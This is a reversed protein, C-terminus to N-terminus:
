DAIRQFRVNRVRGGSLEFGRLEGDEGRTFRLTGMGWRDGMFRDKEIPTLLGPPHRRHEAMLRGDRVVLTYTTGLEPSYYDGEYSRLDEAPIPELRSAPVTRGPMDLSAGAVRRDSDRQFAIVTRQPELYFRDEGIAIVPGPQGSGMRMMLRDGSRELSVLSGTRLLYTGVYDDLLAPAIAIAPPAPREADPVSPAAHGLFVDAVQRAVAGSNFTAANSLVVVGLRREPFWALYSRFGADAGGHQLMREGRHEDHSLAFAYAITDGNNLIGREKMRAIVGAGGVRGTELNHIWRTLDEATTFLSTAGANAYNLVAHRYGGDPAPRYSYARGPVIFEHDDHFHTSAMELPEFLNRRSWDRLTEGTVREVIEAMLTYGMNSYLHEAGPVFNLDEQHRALSLIQDKTIVDDIRWGAMMLLEWQDRLGSTHHILHRVTITHGFDRLEPLHTRIDDDLSLRGQDALMTLAFATFQKSVSAVHFITQPTIPVDYELTARGYGRSLVLRGDEIVAVAAGPGDPASWPAFISDILTARPDAVAQAEALRAATVLALAVAIIPLTRHV